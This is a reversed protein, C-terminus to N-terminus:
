KLQEPVVGLQQMFRLNDSTSWFEVWKGALIKVFDVSTFEVKNGTPAIGWFEGQHTGKMTVRFAVKDGEAVMDEINLNVDPFASMLMSDFEWCQKVSMDGHSMHFICSSAYLEYMAGIERRNFLDYVRRVIAKNEEEVSM